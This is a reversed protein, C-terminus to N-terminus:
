RAKPEERQVRRKAGDLDTYIGLLAKQPNYVKFKNNAQIIVFNMANKFISNGETTPEAKFDRWAQAQESPMYRARPDITSTAKVEKYQGGQKEISSKYLKDFNEQTPYEEGSTPDILWTDNEGLIKKQSKLPLGKENQIWQSFNTAGEARAREIAESYLIHQLKNGRFREPVKVDLRHMLENNKDISWDIRGAEEGNPKLLMITRDEGTKHYALRLNYKQVASNTEAEKGIFEGKLQKATYTRGGQEGESPMMFTQSRGAKQKMEPTIDYGLSNSLIQKTYDVQNLKGGWTDASGTDFNRAPELKQGYKQLEDNIMKPIEKGYLADVFREGEANTSVAENMDEPRVLVVRDAGLEVAKRMITRSAIKVTEPMNQLPKNSQKKALLSEKESILRTIAFSSYDPINKLEPYKTKILNERKTFFKDRIDKYNAIGENGWTSKHSNDLVRKDVTYEVELKEIESKADQLKKVQGEVGKRQTESLADRATNISQIEEVFLVKRGQADTRITTRIHVIADKGYHGEVGHAHEPNIRVVFTHYGETKGQAVYGSTDFGGGQWENGAMDTRPDIHVQIGKEKIYQRIEAETVSDKGKAKLYDVLGISGAEQVFKGYEGKAQGSFDKLAKLLVSAKVTGEKNLNAPLIKDLALSLGSVFPPNVAQQEQNYKIELFKDDNLNDSLFRNKGTENRKREKYQELTEPADLPEQRINDVSPIPKGAPNEKQYIVDAKATAEELTKFTGIVTGDPKHAKFGAEVQFFKYGNPHKYISGNPTAEHEMESPMMNYRIYDTANDGKFDIKEGSMREQTIRDTRFKRYTSFMDGKIDGLSKNITGTAPTELGAVQHLVNRKYEGNETWLQASPLRVGDPQSANKFYRFLDATFADKDDGWAARVKPDKWMADQRVLLHRYDLTHAYFGYDNKGVVAEFKTLIVLRDKTAVLPSKVRVNKGIGINMTDGTYQNFEFVNSDTLGMAADRLLKIRAGEVADIHGSKVFYDVIADPPHGVFNGDADKTLGGIPMGNADKIILAEPNSAAFAELGTHMATANKARVAKQQAETRVKWKGGKVKPPEFATSNGSARVYAEQGDPSLANFDFGQGRSAASKTRILDEMMYDLAGVRIRKGDKDRFSPNLHQERAFDFGGNVGGVKREMYDQWKNKVSDLVGRIGNLQGGRFLYDVPKDNLFQTWYYAGFEETLGALVPTVGDAEMVTMKGTKYYEDLATKLNALREDRDKGTYANNIYKSFFSEAEYKSISPPKIQKGDKDFTGLIHEQIRDKFESKMGLERFVGHFMEHPLTNGIQSFKDTNIHIKIKGNAGEQITWGAANYQEMTPITYGESDRLKVKNGDKDLKYRFGGAEAEGAGKSNILGQEQARRVVEAHEAVGYTPDDGSEAIKKREELTKARNEPKTQELVAVEDNIAQEKSNKQKYQKESENPSTEKAGAKHEAEISLKRNAVDAIEADSLNKIGNNELLKKFRTYDGNKIDRVIAEPLFGFRSALTRARSDATSRAEGVANPKEPKPTFDPATEHEYGDYKAPDQGRARLQAENEKAGGARVPTEPAVKDLTVIYRDVVWDPNGARRNAERLLSYASHSSPDVDKLMPMLMDMQVALRQKELGGKYNIAARGVLGGMSGIGFGAGAGSWAGEEGGGLYGLGAGIVAGHAGGEMFAGTYSLMPDAKDLVGLLKRAQPSLGSGGKALMADSEAIAQEAFSLLGRKGGNKMIQEGTASLAEGMGAAFGAGLYVKSTPSLYPVGFGISGFGGVRAATKLEQASVGTVGELAASGGEVVKDITGRTIDGIFELPVGAMKLTGGYVAGKMKEAFAGAKALRESMGLVQAVKEAIGVEGAGVLFSGYFMPDVIITAAQTLAPDIYDKSVLMTKAGTEYDVSEKAFQRAELFQKYASDSGDRALVNKWKFLVSSPDQSQALMGYWNRINQTGGELLSPALKVADELAHDYISSIVNGAIDYIAGAADAFMSMGDFLSTEKKSQYENFADFEQKTPTYSFETDNHLKQAVEEGTLPATLRKLAEQRQEAPLTNLYADAKENGTLPPVQNNDVYGQPNIYLDAM